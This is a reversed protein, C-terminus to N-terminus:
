RFKRFCCFDWNKTREDVIVSVDFDVTQGSGIKDHVDTNLRFRDYKKNAEEVGEVINILANKIGGNV